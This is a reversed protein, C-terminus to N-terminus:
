YEYRESKMVRSSIANVAFIVLALIIGFAAAYGFEGNKFVADLIYIPVVYTSNGPGGRTLVFV